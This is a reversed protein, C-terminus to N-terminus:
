RNNQSLRLTSQMGVLAGSASANRSAALAVAPTAPSVLGGTAIYVSDTRSFDKEDAHSGGTMETKLGHMVSNSAMLQRVPPRPLSIHDGSLTNPLPGRRRVSTQAAFQAALM